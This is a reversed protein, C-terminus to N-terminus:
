IRKFTSPTNDEFRIHNRSGTIYNTLQDIIFDREEIMFAVIDGLSVIGILKDNDIVPLYRLFEDTMLARCHDVKTNPTVCRINRQMITKVKTHKSSRGELIIKRAYDRETIVGQLVGEGIVMLAGIENEAMINIARFVSQDPSITFVQRRIKNNLIDKVNAM